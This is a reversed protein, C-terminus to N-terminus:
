KIEVTKKKQDIYMAIANLIALIIGSIGTWWYGLIWLTTYLAILTWFTLCLNCNFPKFNLWKPLEWVETINFTLYKTGLFFALMALLQGFASIYNM